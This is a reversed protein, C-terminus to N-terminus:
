LLMRRTMWYGAAASLLLLLPVWVRLYFRLQQLIQMANDAPIGMEVTYGRDNASIHQFAFRFYRDDVTRNRYATRKIQMPPLLISPNSELFPSRYLLDGTELYIELYEGAHGLSYRKGIQERLEAVTADKQQSQLFSKLDEVQTQLNDDVLSFLHSRLFHLTGMGLALEGLAFIALFWLTLRVGISLKKM